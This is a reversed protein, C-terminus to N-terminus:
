ESIRGNALADAVQAWNRNIWQADHKNQEFTARDIGFTADASEGPTVGRIPAAEFLVKTEADERLRAIQADLEEDLNLMPLALKVSRVGAKRLAAEAAHTAREHALTENLRSLESKPVFEGFEALIKDALDESAGLACLTEKTM